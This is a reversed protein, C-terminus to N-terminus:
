PSYKQEAWLCKQWFEKGTNVSLIIYVFTNLTKQTHLSVEIDAFLQIRICTHTHTQASIIYAQKKRFSCSNWKLNNAEVCLFFFLAIGAHM